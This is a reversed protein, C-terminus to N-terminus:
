GVPIVSIQGELPLNAGWHVQKVANQDDRTHGCARDRHHQEHAPACGLPAVEGVTVAGRTDEPDERGPEGHQEPEDDEEGERTVVLRPGSRLGLREHDGLLHLGRLQEGVRDGGLQGALQDAVGARDDM